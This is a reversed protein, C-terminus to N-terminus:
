AGFFFPELIYQVAKWLEHCKAREHVWQVDSQSM